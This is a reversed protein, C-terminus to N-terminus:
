LRTKVEEMGVLDRELTSHRLEFLEEFFSMINEAKRCNVGTKDIQDIKEHRKTM